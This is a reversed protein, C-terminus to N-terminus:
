HHLSLSWDSGSPLALNSITLFSTLLEYTFNVSNTPGDPINATVSYPQAVGVIVVVEVACGCYFDGRTDACRATLSSSASGTLYTFSRHCYQQQNRYAFSHGDDVYLQGRASGQTDLAVYLAYPSTWLEETSRGICIKRPIITGGRQFVPVTEITVPLRLKYAGPFRQNTSLQYWVEGDGPLLLEVDALARDTIPHVLLAEGLMYTDDILFTNTEGPFEMWLPRIVPQATTHAIYFLSYWYPLLSYRLHIANRILATATDGFLWPERREMRIHSHGRFFPQFAAAQYWRVLLEWDPNGIFGGVDAGCLSLGTISLCLLMPISIKLYSWDAVNDGTWVAGFRQSGAFFSRTLVFPREAGGSRRLLGEATAWHQYFGYLNHLHRHQWSGWHVADRPITLEPGSFVSPENMDNWVFLIDTSGQYQDLAHKSAYWDRVAPNTFDLYASLGPWCLGQYECGKNDKVFYGNANAQSYLPYESDVKIHPDSIVVLKRKQCRLHQQLRQPTPFTLPDWTLYRRGATHEIDLWIADYPIHHADFGADVKEVEEEDRYNWRSQHYGLAFLPPLMPFGTLRAYQACVEGATPGLLMYVDIVGSESMWRADTGPKVAQAGAQQGEQPQPSIHILTDSANLWLLGLSSHPKHALLLPVSGYLGMRSHLECAFVDLNYLRYPEGQSTNDLPLHGTHQPIGYVHHYGHLSFDLGVSCPGDTKIDTFEGFKEEWLEKEDEEQWGSESNTQAASQSCPEPRLRLHEFYLLGRANVSLPGENAEAGPGHGARLVELIFPQAVIRLRTEGEAVALMVCADTVSEVWLRQMVPEAIIVDPVEYRAKIPQLETIKIRIVPGQAAWLQVLLPPQPKQSHLQFSATGEAVQM